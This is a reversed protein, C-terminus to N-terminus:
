FLVSHQKNMQFLHWFKCSTKHTDPSRSMSVLAWHELTSSWRPRRVLSCSCTGRNRWSEESWPCPVSGSTALVVLEELASELSTLSSLADNVGPEAPAASSVGSEAWDSVLSMLSVATQFVKTHPPPCLCSGFSCCFMMNGIMDKKHTSFHDLVKLFDNVFLSQSLLASGDRSSIILGRSPLIYLLFIMALM